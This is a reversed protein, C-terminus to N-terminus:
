IFVYKHVCGGSPSINVHPIGSMGISALQQRTKVKRFACVVSHVHKGLHSCCVAVCQLMSCSVVVCSIGKQSFMRSLLFRRIQHVFRDRVCFQANPSRRLDGPIPSRRLDGPGVFASNVFILAFSSESDALTSSIVESEQTVWWAGSEIM